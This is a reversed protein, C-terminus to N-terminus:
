SSDAARAYIEGLSPVAPTRIQLNIGAERYTALIDPFLYSAVEADIGLAALAQMASALETRDAGSRILIWAVKAGARCAQLLDQDRGRAAASRDGGGTLAAHYAPMGWDRMMLASLMEADVEFVAREAEALEARSAVGLTLLMQRYMEPFVSVLALRGIGSLLGYTFAEDPPIRKTHAALVRAVVARALSEAWFEGYDFEALGGRNQTLLSVEVAIRAVARMGLMTVAQDVSAVHRRIGLASANVARMIRGCLAPDSAIVRTVDALPVDPQQTLMTLERAIANPSPLKDSAMIEDYVAQGKM